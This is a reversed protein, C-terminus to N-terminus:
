QFNLNSFPNASVTSAAMHFQTDTQAPMQIGSTEEEGSFYVKVIESAKEYIVADEHQQLAEFAEFAFPEVHRLMENVDKAGSDVESQGARLIQELGELAVTIIKPDHATLLKALPPIVGDAVMSQIHLWTGSSTANSVCWCAEKKVDFEATTLLQVMAPMIRAEIVAGIQDVNGATINSLTWCAEKRISKKHSKLMKLLHPLAGSNIVVQTQLDDGTVINGISRLAPTQVAPSTHSLLEVLRRTVGAEVVAQIKVDPGDSLYSLAWCSDTLVEDDHYFLLKSLTGLADSVLEFPPQPKGRCFNSLTWTANRLMTLKQHQGLQMLLPPLAHARLVMDRCEPSDGAINGLAWVAQERVDESPSSLLRVFVPIANNDIVVRTHPSTGSAINTLAWAAEFQLKQNESRDLFQTFRPVVGTQIVESIPPHKEISLLKRFQTTGELQQLPDRSAVMALMSGVSRLREAVAPDLHPTPRTAEPKIPPGGFNYHPLGGPGVPITPPIASVPAGPSAGLKAAMAQRRKQM